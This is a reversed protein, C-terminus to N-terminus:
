CDRILRRLRSGAPRLWQLGYRYSQDGDEGCWVVHCDLPVPQEEGRFSLQLTLTEGVPFARNTCICAGGESINDIVGFTFHEFAEIAATIAARPRVRAARREQM